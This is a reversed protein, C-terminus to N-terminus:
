QKVWVRWINYDVAVDSIVDGVVEPQCNDFNAFRGFFDDGVAKPRIKTSCRKAQGVLHHADQKIIQPTAPTIVGNNKINDNIICSTKNNDKAGSINYRFRCLKYHQNVSFLFHRKDQMQKSYM